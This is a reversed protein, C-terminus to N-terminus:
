SMAGITRPKIPNEALSTKEYMVLKAQILQRQIYILMLTILKINM